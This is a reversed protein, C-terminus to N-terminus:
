SKKFRIIGYQLLGSKFFKSLKKYGFYADVLRESLIDKNPVNRLIPELFSEKFEKLPTNVKTHNSVDESLNEFSIFEVGYNNFKSKWDELSMYDFIVEDIKNINSRKELLTDSYIIDVIYIEGDKNLLSSVKECMVDKELIHFASEIFYILDFKNLFNYELFDDLILHLNENDCFYEEAIAFQVPNLNIGYLNSNKWEKSLKKLTGGTGFGVDLINDPTWDKHHFLRKHLLDMAEQAQLRIHKYEKPKSIAKFFCYDDSPNELIGFHTRYEDIERAKELLIEFAEYYEILYKKPNLTEQM